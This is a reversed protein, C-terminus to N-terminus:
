LRNSDGFFSPRGWLKLSRQTSWIRGVTLITVTVNAALMLGFFFRVDLLADPTFYIHCAAVYGFATTALSLLVPLIVVGRFSVRRLVYWRYILLGDAIANNHCYPSTGCPHDLQSHTPLAGGSNRRPHFRRTCCLITNAVVKLHNHSTAGDGDYGIYVHHCRALRLYAMRRAHM